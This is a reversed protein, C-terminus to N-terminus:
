PVSLNYVSGWEEDIDTTSDPQSRAACLQGLCLRVPKRHGIKSFLLFNASGTGALSHSTRTLRFTIRRLLTPDATERGKLGCRTTLREVWPM